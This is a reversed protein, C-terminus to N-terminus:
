LVNNNNPPNFFMHSTINGDPNFRLNKNEFQQIKAFIEKRFNVFITSVSINHCSLSHLM